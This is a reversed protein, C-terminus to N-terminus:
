ARVRQQIMAADVTRHEALPQRVCGNLGLVPKAPWAEDPESGRGEDVQSGSRVSRLVRDPIRELHVRAGTKANADRADRTRQPDVVRPTQAVARVRPRDAPLHLGEM